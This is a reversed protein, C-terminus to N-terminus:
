ELIAKIRRVGSDSSEEKIIKFHGLESLNQVHPGACM